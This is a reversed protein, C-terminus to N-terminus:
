SHFFKLFVDSSNGINELYNDLISRSKLSSNIQFDSNSSNNLFLKLKNVDYIRIFPLKDYSSEFNEDFIIQIVFKKMLLSELIVTSSDWIEPSFNIVIDSKSILNIINSSEAIKINKFQNLFDLLILNFENEGPHLKITISSFNNEKLLNITNKIKELYTIKLQIDCNGSRDTCPSLTLLINKPNQIKKNIFNNSFIDYKPSGLIVLKNPELYNQFFDFDSKGWILFKDSNLGILNQDEYKWQLNYLKKDYRLFSHQLLYFKFRRNKLNLFSNETEGTESLSLVYDIRLESNLLNSIFIQEVYDDLRNEYLKLFYPKLIHWFSIGDFKFYDNFFNNKEWLIKLENRINKKILELELKLPNNLFSKSSFIKIQNKQFIIFSKYNFISPRRNNLLIIKYDTKGLKEILKEYIVTNFELLFICKDNSNKKYEFFLNFLNDSFKRFRNFIKKPLYIKLPKKFLQFRIEIEDNSFGHNKKPKTNPIKHSKIDSQILNSLKESMYFCIPNIKDFLEKIRFMLLLKPFIFEHLELYSMQSLFNNNCIKFNVAGPIEDYWTKKSKILEYIENIKSSDLNQDILEHDISLKNLKIHSIYDVAIFKKNDLHTFEDLNIKEISDDILIVSPNIESM